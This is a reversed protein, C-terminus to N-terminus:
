EFTQLHGACSKKKFKGNWIRCQGEVLVVVKHLLFIKKTFIDM